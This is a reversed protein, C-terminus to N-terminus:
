ACCPVVPVFALMGSILVILVNIHSIYTHSPIDVPHVTSSSSPLRERYSYPHKCMGMCLAKLEPVRDKYFAMHTPVNLSHGRRRSVLEAYDIGLDATSAGPDVRISTMQINVLLCMELEVM